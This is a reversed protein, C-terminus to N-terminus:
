LNKEMQKRIDRPLSSDYDESIFQCEKAASLFKEVDSPAAMRVVM